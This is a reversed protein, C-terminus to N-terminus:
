TLALVLEDHHDKALVKLRQIMRYKRSKAAGHDIDFWEMLDINDAQCYFVLWALERQDPELQGILSKVRHVMIPDTDPAEAAQMRMQIRGAHSEERSRANGDKGSFDIHIPLTLETNRKLRYWGALANYAAQMVLAAPDRGQWEYKRGGKWAEWMHMYADATVERAVYHDGCKGIVANLVKGYSRRYLEEYADADAENLRDMLERPSLDAYDM